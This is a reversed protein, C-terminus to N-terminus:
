AYDGTNRQKKTARRNERHQAERRTLTVFDVQVADPTLMDYPSPPIGSRGTVVFSSRNQSPRVQCSQDLKQEVPEAPLTNPREPIDLVISVNIGFESSANIDSKSTPQTNYQFGLIGQVKISVGGGSGTFANASIDNDETAVGVLFAYPANIFINGNDGGAQATGATTTINSGRRMLLLEAVNLYINGGDSSPTEATIKGNNLRVFNATISLNGAAGIGTSSVEAQAGDSISLSCLSAIRLRKLKGWRTSRRSM